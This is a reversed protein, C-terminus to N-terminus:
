RNKESQQYERPTMGTHQKFLHYFYQVNNSLGVLEAVEYMKCNSQRKLYEKAKKMRVSLLYESFKQGTKQYFRKGVYQANMHLVEDAVYQLTLNQDQYHNNIYHKVREELANQSQDLWESEQGRSEQAERTLDIAEACNQLAEVLEDKSCPKLLYFKVSELMAAQALPFEDYGSLIICQLQPNSVRARRILEIGDMVPMKVDTILIDPMEDEMSELAKPASSCSTILRLGLTDWPILKKIIERIHSEDDVLMVTKM